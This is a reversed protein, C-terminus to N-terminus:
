MATFTYSLCIRPDIGLLGMVEDTAGVYGLASVDVRDVFADIVRIPHNLPIHDDLAEPFLTTQSRSIGDIYSMFLPRM